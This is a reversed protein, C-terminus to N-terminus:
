KLNISYNKNIKNYIIYKKTIERKYKNKNRIKKIIQSQEKKSKKNLSGRLVLTTAADLSALQTVPAKSIISAPPAWLSYHNGLMHIFNFDVRAKSKVVHPILIHTVPLGGPM